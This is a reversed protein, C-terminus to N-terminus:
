DEPMHHRTSQYKNAENLLFQRGADESYVLFLNGHSNTGNLQGKGIPYVIAVL